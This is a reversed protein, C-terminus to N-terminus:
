LFFIKEREREREREGFLAICKMAYQMSCFLLFKKRFPWEDYVSNHLLQVPEMMIPM